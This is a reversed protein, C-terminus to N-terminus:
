WWSCPLHQPPLSTREAYLFRVDGLMVSAPARGTGSLSLSQNALSAQDADALTSAVVQGGSLFAAEASIPQSIERVIREISVGSLMDWSREMKITESYLPQLSCAYLSGGDILYHKEPSALLAKM